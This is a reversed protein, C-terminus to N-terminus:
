KNKEYSYPKQSLISITKMIKDTISRLLLHYNEKEKKQIEEKFKLLKGIKIIRGEKGIQLGVPLVPVKEKLVLEAIGTKGRLLNKKSNSDGEPYIVIIQNKKLNQRMKRIISKRNEKQRHITIVEALYYLFSSKLLLSLNDMAGVFRVNEVRDKLLYAIFFHDRGNLHNSALIFNNHSPINEEGEIKEIFKKTVPFGIYHLFHVFAKKM